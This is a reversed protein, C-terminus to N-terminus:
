SRSSPLRATTTSRQRRMRTMCTIATITHSGEAIGSFPSLFAWVGTADATVTGLVTTGEMLTVLTAPAATGILTPDATIRDSASAGTDNFLTITPPTTDLTVFFPSTDRFHGAVDTARAIFVHPGDPLVPTYSWTGGADALVTALLVPNPNSGDVMGTMDYVAVAVGADTTGTLTADSTIRDSASTGTDNALGITLTAVM